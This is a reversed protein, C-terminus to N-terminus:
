LVDDVVKEVEGRSLMWAGRLRSARNGSGTLAYAILTVAEDSGPNLSASDITIDWGSYVLGPDDYFEWVDPREFQPEGVTVLFRHGGREGIIAVREPPQNTDANRAWGKARYARELLSGAPGTRPTLADFAGVVAAPREIFAVQGQDMKQATEMTRQQQLAMTTSEKLLRSQLASLAQLRLLSSFYELPDRLGGLDFVTDPDGWVFRVRGDSTIRLRAVEFPSSYAQRLTPDEFEQVFRELPGARWGSYPYYVIPNFPLDYGIWVPPSLDKLRKRLALFQQQSLAQEQAWSREAIETTFWFPRVEHHAVQFEEACRRVLEPTEELNRRCVVTIVRIEPAGPTASFIQTLRRFNDQFTTFKAGTRLEEFVQPSWSDISVNIYGIGSRALKEFYDDRFPKALNTTFAVQRQHAEPIRLLLELFRPHLTPEFSCSIFFESEPKLLPALTFAKDFLEPTMLLNGKIGEFENVCYPCRLNCNGTVDMMIADCKYAAM